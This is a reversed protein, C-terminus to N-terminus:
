FDWLTGFAHLGAVDGTLLGNMLSFNWEFAFYVYPPPPISTIYCMGVHCGQMMENNGKMNSTIFIVEAGFSRWTDKLLQM